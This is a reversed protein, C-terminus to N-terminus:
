PCSRQPPIPFILPQPTSVIEEKRNLPSILFPKNKTIAKLQLRDDMPHDMPRIDHGQGFWFLTNVGKADFAVSVIQGSYSQAGDLLLPAKIYGSKFDIAYVARRHIYEKIIQGCDSYSSRHDYPSQYTIGEARWIDLKKSRAEDYEVVFIGHPHFPEYSIHPPSECAKVTNLAAFIALGLLKLKQM